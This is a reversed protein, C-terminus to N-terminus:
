EVVEDKLIPIPSPCPRKHDFASSDCSNIKDVVVVEKVDDAPATEINWVKKQAKDLKEQRKEAAKRRFKKQKDPKVFDQLENM